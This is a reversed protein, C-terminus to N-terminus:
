FRGISTSNHNLNRMFKSNIGAPSQWDSKFEASLDIELSGLFDHEARPGHDFVEILLRWTTTDEDVVDLDLVEDTFVPSLEDSLHKTVAEKDGTKLTYKIYPDSRNPAEAPALKNCMIESVQLVGPGPPSKLCAAEIDIRNQKLAPKLELNIGDTASEFLEMAARPKGADKERLAEDLLERNLVPSAARRVRERDSARPAPSSSRSRSRSRSPPRPAAKRPSKARPQTHSEKLKTVLQNSTILGDGDSDLVAFVLAVQWEALSYLKLGRMADDFGAEDIKDDRNAVERLKGVVHAFPKAGAVALKESMYTLCRGVATDAANTSVALPDGVPEVFDRFIDFSIEGDEELYDFLFTIDDDSCSAELQRAENRVLSELEESEMDEGAQTYSTYIKRWDVDRTGANIKACIRQRLWEIKGACLKEVFDEFPIWGDYDRELLTVVDTTEEAALGSEVADLQISFTRSKMHGDHARGIARLTQLRGSRGATLHDFLTSLSEVAMSQSEADISEIVALDDATVDRQVNQIVRRRVTPTSAAWQGVSRINNRELAAVTSDADGVGWLTLRAFMDDSTPVPSHRSAPSNSASDIWQSVRSNSANSRPSTKRPEEDDSRSHESRDRSMSRARSTPWTRDHSRGSDHSRDDDPELRLSRDASARDGSPSRQRTRPSNSADPVFSFTLDITGCPNEDGRRTRVNMQRREDMGLRKGTPDELRYYFPGAPVDWDPSLARMTEVIDMECEGLFDDLKARDWDYVECRLKLSGRAASRLCRYEFTESFNPNVNNLKTKTKQFKETGLFLKVYPDSSQGVGSDAELLNSCRSVEVKLTGDQPPGYGSDGGRLFNVFESLSIGETTKTHMEQYILDLERETPNDRFSAKCMAQLESFKLQRTRDRNWKDFIKKAEKDTPNSSNTCARTLERRLEDTRDDPGHVAAASDEVEEPTLPAQSYEDRNTNVTPAGKEPIFFLQMHVLGFTRRNNVKLNAVRFEHLVKKSRDRWTFDGDEANSWDEDFVDRLDISREGLFIDKPSFNNRSWAGLYLMHEKAYPDIKFQIATSNVRVQQGQFRKHVLDFDPALTGNVTNTMQKQEDEVSTMSVGVYPNSVDYDSRPDWKSRASPVLDECREVVVYLKGKCPPKNQKAPASNVTDSASGERKFFSDGASSAAAAKKDLEDRSFSFGRISGRLADMFEDLGISGDGDTDIAAMIVRVEWPRLHLGIKILAAELEAQDLSGDGNTDMEDFQDYTKKGTQHSQQTLEHQMYILTKEVVSSDATSVLSDDNELFSVFELATIGDDRNVDIHDFLQELQSTSIEREPVDCGSRGQVADKFERFDLEGDGNTDLRRFLAKFNMQGGRTDKKACSILRERVYALNGVYSRNIFEERSIEGDNDTDMWAVVEDVDADSLDLRLGRLAQALESHSLRGDGDTDFRKFMRMADGKGNISEFIRHITKPVNGSAMQTTQAKASALVNRDQLTVRMERRMDSLVQDRTSARLGVWDGLTVIDHRELQDMVLAVDRIGVATLHESLQETELERDDVLDQAKMIANFKGQKGGSWKGGFHLVGAKLELTGSWRTVQNGGSRKRGHQDVASYRQDFSARAGDVWGNEVTFDVHEQPNAPQKGVLSNDSHQTLHLEEVLSKGADNGTAEWLGTMDMTEAFAGQPKDLPVFWVRIEVSGYVKAHNQRLRM